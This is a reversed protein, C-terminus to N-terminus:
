ENRLVAAPQLAMARRAPVLVAVLAAGLLSAGVAAFTSADSAGVGFLLNAVLRTLPLAAVLGLAIGAAVVQMGQGVVLRLIDGPSGGVALRISMEKAHQQVYYSMVGHIGVASLVLAVIAFAGVLFTLSRPRQLSRVVLDDTGAVDSLPLRPDLERLVRRVSPLVSPAPLSTRLLVYRAPWAPSMAWYVTGEDPRDLGAYKVDGVVGVVTTWPCTTCGGERFRRGVASGRPFFRRAWARDVVVAELNEREGDREDLLRGEYLTLGLLRFYGPTVCVWPAVPQSQGPAAPADELDFNNFNGVDEPARGDAFAVASVGPQAELRRQLEDWFARRRGPESYAAPPLDIAGSVLNRGDFGLDVRGLADLSALLLAAVVLLPTAIAFQAAVLARRLRRATRGGTASRGESRLSEDVPGGAGHVAPVLGFLLASAVALGVLLSAV